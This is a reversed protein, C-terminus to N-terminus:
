GVPARRLPARSRRAGAWLGKRGRNGVREPRGGLHSRRGPRAPTAGTTRRRLRVLRGLLGDPSSDRLRADYPDASECRPRSKYSQALGPELTLLPRKRRRLPDGSPRTPFEHRNRVESVTRHKQCPDDARKLEKNEARLKRMEAAMDSTVGGRRGWDVQERRVWSHLTQAAGIGLWAAVSEITACESPHEHRCEAVM